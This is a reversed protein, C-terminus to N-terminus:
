RAAGAVEGSATAAAVDLAVSRLVAGVTSPWWQTAHRATPIGDANLGDSIQLMTRGEAREQAIRDRIEQPLTVPCGLRVGRAKAQALADKTRQGIVRREWQAVAAMVAGVMEGAPTTTDVGLDLAILAWGQRRSREMLGAFDGVSRSLRDLKAVVLADAQRAELMGLAERVGPRELSAGSHGNDVILCVPPWGRRIADAEITARQADLGLGSDGQERTSVRTYGIAKM